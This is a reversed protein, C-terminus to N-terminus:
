KSPRKTVEYPIPKKGGAIPVIFLEWAGKRSSAYLIQTNDPSVVPFQDPAPDDTLRLEAGGTSGMVYIDWNSARESCFVIKLGDRSYHPDWDYANDNTLRTEETGDSNISYIDFTGNKGNTYAGNAYM